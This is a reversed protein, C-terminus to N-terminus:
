GPPWTMSRGGILHIHIHYVVQGADNGTNIVIRFGSKDFGTQVALDKAKHIMRGMLGHDEEELELVNAIHKRPIILFHSPAVKNLDEFVVMEDDEFVM